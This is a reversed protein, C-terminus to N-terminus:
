NEMKPLLITFASGENEKSQIQLTGQHLKIIERSLSLGIGTGNKKTSFFPIFIKDRMEPSIGCGNDVVMIYACGEHTTGSVLVIRPAEKERVAYTANTIFNILVQEILGRDIKASLLRNETKLEFSINKQTLSPEMLQHIAHLMQSLNEQKLNPVITKSLNRYTDAFRLLGESRRHITDLAFELD